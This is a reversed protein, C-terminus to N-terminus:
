KYVLTVQIYAIYDFLDIRVGASSSEPDEVVWNPCTGLPALLYGKAQKIPSIESEPEL